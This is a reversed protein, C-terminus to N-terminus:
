NESFEYSNLFIDRIDRHARIQSIKLFNFIKLCTNRLERFNLKLAGLKDGFIKVGRCVSM